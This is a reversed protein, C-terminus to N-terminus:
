PLTTPAGCFQSPDAFLKEQEPGTTPLTYDRVSVVEFRGDSPHSGTTPSSGALRLVTEHVHWVADPSDHPLSEAATQIIRRNDGSGTCRVNFASFADGLFAFRAPDGPDFQGAPDGPPAVPVAKPGIERPPAVYIVVEQITFAVTSM